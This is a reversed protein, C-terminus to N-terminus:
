RPMPADRPPLDLSEPQRSSRRLSLRSRSASRGTTTAVRADHPSVFRDPAIEASTTSRDRFATWDIRFALIAAGVVTTPVYWVAHMLISFALAEEHAVGLVGLSQVGLWQFTGVFGPSSPIASGLNMVAAVFLADQVSLHIGVSRGVVIVAAAWLCWAVISLAIAQSIRRRGLPSALGELTDRVVGRFVGRTRRERARTRTYRRAFTLGFAVGAALVSVGGAIRLVWSESIVTPLSVCLFLALAAIDFCRDLVVTALGRGSPLRAEVAIERARFLEGLRGPLVNNCAIGAVVLEAYRTGVPEKKGVIMRWRFGQLVYVGAVLLVGLGLAWRDANTVAEWVEGLDANRVSLWLLLASV